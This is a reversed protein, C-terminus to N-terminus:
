KMGGAGLMRLVTQCLTMLVRHIQNPLFGFHILAAM